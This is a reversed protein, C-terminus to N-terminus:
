RVELDYRDVFVGAPTSGLEYLASAHLGSARSRHRRPGPPRLRGLIAKGARTRGAGAGRIRGADDTYVRLVVVVKDGLPEALQVEGLPTASSIRWSRRAGRPGFQAIRAENDVREVVLEKGNAFARGSRGRRRQSPASLGAGNDAVPMWQGAPYGLVVPGTAGAEVSSARREAIRWAGLSRGATDFSRVLPAAGEDGVTELVAMTGDDGVALDAITGRVDTPIVAPTAAGPAFRLVRRKAEDLLHVAGDRGVDFSSGGIPQQEPGPELGIQAPGAGWSAAAARATARRVSGFAHAGLDVTIAPGLPRSRM